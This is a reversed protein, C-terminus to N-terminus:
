LFNMSLDSSVPALFARSSKPLQQNAKNIKLVGANDQSCYPHFINYVALIHFEVIYIPVQTFKKKKKKLHM